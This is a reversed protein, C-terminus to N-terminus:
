PQTPGPQILNSQIPISQHLETDRIKRPSKCIDSHISYVGLSQYHKLFDWITANDIVKLIQNTPNILFTTM